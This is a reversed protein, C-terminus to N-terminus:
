ADDYSPPAPLRLLQPNRFPKGHKFWEAHIVKGAQAQIGFVLYVGLRYGFGKLEDTLMEVKWLDDRTPSNLTEIEIAVLNNDDTGREHVAIDLEIVKGDLTKSASLHKNYFPDVVIGECIGEGIGESIERALHYTFTREVRGRSLLGCERKAVLRAAAEIKKMWYSEM